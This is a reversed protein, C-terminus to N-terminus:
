SREGSARHKYVSRYMYTHFMITTTYVHKHIYMYMYVHLTCVHIHVNVGMNTYVQPSRTLYTGQALGQNALLVGVLTLLSLGKM